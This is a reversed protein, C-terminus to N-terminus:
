SILVAQNIVGIRNMRHNTNLFDSLVISVLTKAKKESAPHVDNNWLELSDMVIM